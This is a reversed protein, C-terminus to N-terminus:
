KLDPLDYGEPLPPYARRELTKDSGPYTYKPPSKVGCAALSAILGLATVSVLVRKASASPQISTPPM